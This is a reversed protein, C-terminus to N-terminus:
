VGGKGRVGGNERNTDLVTRAAWRVPLALSHTRDADGAARASEMTDLLGPIVDRSLERGIQPRSFPEIILPPRDLWSFHHPGM